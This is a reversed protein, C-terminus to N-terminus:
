GKGVKLYIRVWENVGLRSPKVNKPLSLEHLVQDIKEASFRRQLNLRVPRGDAYGLKVLQQYRRKDVVPLMPRMKQKFRFLVAHVSPKPTFDSPKFRYVVSFDFWPQHLASFLNNSNRAVLREALTDMVVLYCDLPPNDDEILKRIIKGEISFPINAFVKYPLRPLPHSLIDGQYITFNKESAFLERLKHHWYSDLEVAIVHGSKKLLERTIIGGGPGIELVLDKKSISSHGVLDSVLKRSCLFNQSLLKRRINRM